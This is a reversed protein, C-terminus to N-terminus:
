ERCNLVTDGVVCSGNVETAFAIHGHPAEIPGDAVFNNVHVKTEEYEPLHGEEEVEHRIFCSTLSNIASKDCENTSHVRRVPFKTLSGSLTTTSNGVPTETTIWCSVSNPPQSPRFRYAYHM